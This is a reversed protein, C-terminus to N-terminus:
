NDDVVVFRHRRDYGVRFYASMRLSIGLWNVREASSHHWNAYQEGFPHSVNQSTHTWDLATLQCLDILLRVRFHLSFTNRESRLVRFDTLQPTAMIHVQVQGHALLKGNAIANLRGGVCIECTMDNGRTNIAHQITDYKVVINTCVHQHLHNSQMIHASITKHLKTYYLDRRVRTFIIHTVTQSWWTWSWLLTSRTVNSRHSLSRSAHVILQTQNPIRQYWRYAAGRGSARANM